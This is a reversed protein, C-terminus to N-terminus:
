GAGFPTTPFLFEQFSRQKAKALNRVLIEAAPMILEEAATHPKKQMVILYAVVYSARVANAQTVAFHGMSDLRQAKLARELRWFEELTTGEHAHHVNRFHDHLKGPKMNENSMKGCLVCRPRM